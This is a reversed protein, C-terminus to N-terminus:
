INWFKSAFWGVRKVELPEDVIDRLETQYRDAVGLASMQADAFDGVISIDYGVGAVEALGQTNHELIIREM